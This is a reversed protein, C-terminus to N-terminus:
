PTLNLRKNSKAKNQLMKFTIIGEPNVSNQLDSLDEDYFRSAYKATREDTYCGPRWQGYASIM